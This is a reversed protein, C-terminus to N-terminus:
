IYSNIPVTSMKLGEKLVTFVYISVYIYYIYYVEKVSFSCKIVYVSNINFLIYKKIGM